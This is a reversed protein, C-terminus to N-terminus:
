ETVEAGPRYWICQTDEKPKKGFIGWTKKLLSRLSLVRLTMSDKNKQKQNAERQRERALEAVRCVRAADVRASAAVLEAADTVQLEDKHERVEM